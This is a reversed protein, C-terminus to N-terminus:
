LPLNWDDMTIDGKKAKETAFPIWVIINRLAPNGGKEHTAKTGALNFSQSALPTVDQFLSAPM